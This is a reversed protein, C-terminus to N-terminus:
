IRLALIHAYVKNYSLIVENLRKDVTEKPCSLLIKAAIDADVALTALEAQLIELTLQKIIAQHEAILDTM